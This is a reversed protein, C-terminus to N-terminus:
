QSIKKMRNGAITKLDKLFAEFKYEKLMLPVTTFLYKYGALRLKWWHALINQSYQQKKISALLDYQRFSVKLRSLLKEADFSRVLSGERYTLCYIVKSCYAVSKSFKAVKMSFMVDNSAAVEDFFISNNSVLKASILKASPYLFSYRISECAADNGSEALILSEAHGRIREKKEFTESHVSDIGFYVLDVNENFFISIVDYFDPYFFDDADAFLLWKGKANKLGLNRAGGATINKESFIVTTNPRNLGPFTNKDISDSNDDIIIIEVDDREPISDLCRNLLDPINKHPIIISVQINAM